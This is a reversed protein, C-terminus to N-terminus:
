KRCAAEEAERGEEVCAKERHLSKVCCIGPMYKVPELSPKGGKFHL